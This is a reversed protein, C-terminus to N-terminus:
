KRKSLQHNIWLPERRMPLIAVVRIENNEFEYYIAYPFRRSLMRYVGSYKLHIGAYIVLSEIDSILSDVFYNGAGYHLKDYFHKGNDLDDVVDTSIRIAYNSV